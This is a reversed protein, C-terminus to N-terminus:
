VGKFFTHLFPFSSLTSLWSAVPEFDGAFTVMDGDQVGAEKLTLTPHQNSLWTEGAYTLVYGHLTTLHDMGVSVGFNWVCTDLSARGICERQRKKHDILTVRIQAKPLPTPARVADPVPGSESTPDAAVGEPARAGKAGETGPTTARVSGAASAARSGADKADAPAEASAEAPAEAGDAGDAAASATAPREDGAVPEFDGAFEVLDGDRVGAASLTLATQQNSRWTKGGYSFLYGHLAALDRM